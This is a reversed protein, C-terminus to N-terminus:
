HSDTLLASKNETSSGAFELLEKRQRVHHQFHMAIIGLWEGANLYGFAPHASKGPHVPNSFFPKIENLEKILEASQQIIESRNLLLPTYDKTPPVKIRVPPFQGLLFTLRGKFTKNGKSPTSIDLCKRVHMLHFNRTGRFLHSYLEALSWTSEDKKALLEEDTLNQLEILWLKIQTEIKSITVNSM